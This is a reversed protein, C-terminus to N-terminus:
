GGLLPGLHRFPHLLARVQLPVTHYAPTADIQLPPDHLLKGDLQVLARHALQQALQREPPQRHTRLVRLGFGLLL